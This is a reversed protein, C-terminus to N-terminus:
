IGSTFGGARAPRHDLGPISGHGSCSASDRSSAGGQQGPWPAGPLRELASTLAEKIQLFLPDGDQTMFLGIRL